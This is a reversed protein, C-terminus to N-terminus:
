CMIRWRFDQDYFDPPCYPVPHCPQPGHPTPWLRRGCTPCRDCHPCYKDYRDGIIDRMDKDSRKKMYESFDDQELKKKFEELGRKCDDM